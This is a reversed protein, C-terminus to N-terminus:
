SHTLESGPTETAACDPLLDADNWLSFFAVGESVMVPVAGARVHRNYKQLLRSTWWVRRWTARENSHDCMQPGVSQATTSVDSAGTLAADLPGVWSPPVRRGSGGLFHPPTEPHHRRYCAIRHSRVDHIEQKEWAAAARAVRAKDTPGLELFWRWSLVRLGVARIGRAPGEHNVYISARWRTVLVNRDAGDGL